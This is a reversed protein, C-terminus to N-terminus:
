AWGRDPATVHGLLLARFGVKMRFIAARSFSASERRDGKNGGNPGM